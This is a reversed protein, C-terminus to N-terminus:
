FSQDKANRIGKNNKVIGFRWVLAGILVGASDAMWDHFSADRLPVFSQHWEDTLAYLSGVALAMFVLHELSRRKFSLSLARMLLIGLVLYELLHLLKDWIYKEVNQLIPSSGPISSILFIITAYLM